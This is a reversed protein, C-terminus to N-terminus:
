VKQNLSRHFRDVGFNGALGISYFTNFRKTYLGTFGTLGPIGQWVMGNFVNFM